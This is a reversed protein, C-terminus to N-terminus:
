KLKERVQGRVLYLFFVMNLLGQGLNPLDFQVSLRWFFLAALMLVAALALAWAWRLMLLLGLGGAVFMAAFVLFIPKFHGTEVGVISTGALLLMYFSIAAIGPLPTRGRRPPPILGGPYKENAPDREPQEPSATM